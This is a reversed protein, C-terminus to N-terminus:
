PSMDAAQHSACAHTYLRHLEQCATQIHSRLVQALCKINARGTQEAHYHLPLNGTVDHASPIYASVRESPAVGILAM